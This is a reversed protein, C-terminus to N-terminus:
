IAVRYNKFSGRNQKGYYSCWNVNWWCHQLTGKEGCGRWCKNNTPKKIIDMRVLTLHYRM